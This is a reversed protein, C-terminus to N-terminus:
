RSGGVMPSLVKDGFRFLARVIKGDVVEFLAILEITGPGEPFTRTIREHDVVLQGMVIRNILEAHLNPETFRAIMRARINDRGSALRTSPYEFQEANVADTAAWADLDRANYAELQRQVVVEPTEPQM